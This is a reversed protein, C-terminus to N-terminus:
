QLVDEWPYHIGSEDMLFRASKGGYMFALKASSAAADVTFQMAWCCRDLTFIFRPELPPWGESTRVSQNVLTSLYVRTHEGVVWAATFGFDTFEYERDDADYRQYEFGGQLSLGPHDECPAVLDFGGTL